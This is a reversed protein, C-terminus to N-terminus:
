KPDISRNRPKYCDARAMLEYDHDKPYVRMSGVYSPPERTLSLTAVSSVTWLSSLAMSVLDVAPNRQFSDAIIM